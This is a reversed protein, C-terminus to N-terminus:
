AFTRKHGLASMPPPLFEKTNEVAAYSMAASLPRAVMRVAVYCLSLGYRERAPRFTRNPEGRWGCSPAASRSM